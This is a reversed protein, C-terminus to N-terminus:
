LLEDSVVIQEASALRGLREADKAIRARRAEFEALNEQYPFNPEANIQPDHRAWPFKADLRNILKSALGM